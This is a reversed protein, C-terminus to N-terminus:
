YPFPSHIGLIAGLLKKYYGWCGMGGNGVLFWPSSWSWHTGDGDLLVEIMATPVKRKSDRDGTKNNVNDANSKRTNHKRRRNRPKQAREDLWAATLHTKEPHKYCAALILECSGNGHELWAWGGRPWGFVWFWLLRYRLGLGVSIGM